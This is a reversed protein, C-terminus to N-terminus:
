NKLQINKITGQFDIEVGVSLTQVLRFIKDFDESHNKNSNTQTILVSVLRKHTVREFQERAKKDVHPSKLLTFREYKSPLFTQELKANFMKSADESFRTMFMNIYYPHFSKVKLVIKHQNVTLM